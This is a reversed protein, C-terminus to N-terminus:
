ARQYGAHTEDRRRDSELSCGMYWDGVTVAIRWNPPSLLNAKGRVDDSSPETVSRWAGGCGVWRLAGTMVLCTGFFNDRTSLYSAGWDASAFGKRDEPEGGVPRGDDSPTLARTSEGMVWCSSGLDALSFRLSRTLDHLADVDIVGNTSAAGSIVGGVCVGSSTETGSNTLDGLESLEKWM